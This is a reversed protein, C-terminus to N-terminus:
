TSIDIEIGSRFVFTLHDDHVTVRELLKRVLDENYEEVETQQTDLFAEFEGIHRRIDANNADELLLDQKEGRLTDIQELIEAYDQNANARRLLEKELGELKADIEAVKAGNNSGLAKEAAVKLGPLLDDKQAMIENVALIFAAHLDSEYVTRSPCDDKNKRRRACRWVPLREDRIFWHCRQFIDGCHACYVISSFAHKGSYVHRNGSSERISARRMMEDQVKMYVERPIIAEHNNEVYYQPVIGNNVVRKKTLFDTTVTKQLLADGIYKENTLIKKLTSSHWYDGGAGTKIGDAALGKGIAYYSRGELFERYIRKVVEAEKPNIVLNGDKDKDYGLFRNHNVQVKGQQYRYQLGLRVNQSLSQSEQQALSAMITLLVEGKADLTNIAEKEFFVAINKDKLMRIYKLCDLTNRAFRSISKTVVLEIKGAMCDDILRNFEERKKTNTGSIGDDAYIGALEWGPHKEIYDTYHEIQADYSTAQEDSDTSVRCYAAVRIKRIGNESKRGGARLTAPIMRVTAM